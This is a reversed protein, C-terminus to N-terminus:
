GDNDDDDDDGADDPGLLDAATWRHDTTGDRPVANEAKISAEEGRRRLEAKLKKLTRFMARRYRGAVCSPAHLLGAMLAYSGLKSSSLGLVNAFKAFKKALSRPVHLRLEGPVDTDVADTSVIPLRNFWAMTEPDGLPLVIRRAERIASVGPWSWIMSLGVELLATTAPELAGGTADEALAEIGYRLYNPARYVPMVTKAEAFGGKAAAVNARALAFVDRPLLPGNLLDPDDPLVGM